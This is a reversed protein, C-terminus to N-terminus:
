FGNYDIYARGSSVATARGWVPVVKKSLQRNAATDWFVQVANLKHHKHDKNMLQAAASSVRINESIIYAYAGRFGSSDIISLNIM